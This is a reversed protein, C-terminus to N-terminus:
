PKEMVHTALDAIPSEISIFNKVISYPVVIDQAGESYPAVQYPDFTFKLGKATIMWSQYNRNTPGAGRRIWAIDPQDLQKALTKVCYDAIVKLYDSRPKFLDNLDLKRGQRLDYTYAFTHRNPHAAGAYYTDAEFGVSILRDNTSLGVSYSIDLSSGAAAGPLGPDPKTVHKKFEEVQQRALTAVEDNFRRHNSDEADSMQPYRVDITYKPKHSAESIQRSVLQATKGSANSAGFV